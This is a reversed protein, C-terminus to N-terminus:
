TLADLRPANIITFNDGMLLVKCQSGVNRTHQIVALRQSHTRTGPVSAWYHKGVKRHMYTPSHLTICVILGDIKTVKNSGAVSNTLSHLPPILFGQKYNNFWEDKITLRNPFLFPLEQLKTKLPFKFIVDNKNSLAKSGKRQDLYFLVSPLGFCYFKAEWKISV